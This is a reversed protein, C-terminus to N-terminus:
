GFIRSIGFEDDTTLPALRTVIPDEENAEALAFAEMDEEFGEGRYARIARITDSLDSEVALVACRLERALMEEALQNM